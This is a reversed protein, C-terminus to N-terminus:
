PVELCSLITPDELTETLTLLAAQLLQHIVGQPREHGGVIAHHLPIALGEVLHFIEQRIKLAGGDHVALHAAPLNVPLHPASTIPRPHGVLQAM